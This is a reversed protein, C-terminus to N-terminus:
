RRRRVCGLCAVVAALALVLSSPEPVAASMLLAGQPPSDYPNDKWVRFDGLTVQGDSGPTGDALGIDGETWGGTVKQGMHSTILDYMENWSPLEPYIPVVDAYESGACIEDWTPTVGGASGFYGAGIAGLELDVDSVVANPFEPESNGPGVYPDLYVSVTDSEPQDSMAFKLVLLHTDDDENFRVDGINQVQLSPRYTTFRLYEWWYPYPGGGPIYYENYGISVVLHDDTLGTGVSADWFEIARYGMGTAGEPISGYDVLLSLYYTGVTSDDLPAALARAVRGGDGLATVSGGPTDAPLWPPQQPLCLSSQQVVWNHDGYWPGTFFPGVYPDQGALAGLSYEGAAPSQGILFPDYALQEAASPSAAVLTVFFAGLAACCLLRRVRPSVSNSM